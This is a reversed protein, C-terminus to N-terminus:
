GHLREKCARGRAFLDRMRERGAGDESGSPEDLARAIDTLREGLDRLAARVAPANTALTDGWTEFPAGAVKLMDRLSGGAADLAGGDLVAEALANAVVHPVHSTLAVARDHEAADIEVPRAGLDRVFRRLLSLAAADTGHGPCLFWTAGRVLDPDAHALGGQSKGAMPHGGVFRGLGRRAAAEVIVAKTSGADTVVAGSEKWAEGWRDLAAVIALVPLSLVVLDAGGLVEDAEDPSVGEDVIGLDQAAGVIGPKDIGLIRAGGWARRTARALSGGMLGLGVFAVRRAPLPRLPAEDAPAPTPAPTPAPAPPDGEPPPPDDVM